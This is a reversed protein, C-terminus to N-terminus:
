LKINKAVINQILLMESVLHHFFFHFLRVAISSIGEILKLMMRTLETMLIILADAIEVYINFKQCM